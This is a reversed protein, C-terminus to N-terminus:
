LQNGSCVLFNFQLCLAPVRQFVNNNLRNLIADNNLANIVIVGDKKAQESIAIIGDTNSIFLIEINHNNRLKKYAPLAKEQDWEDDEIFLNVTPDGSKKNTNYEDIALQLAKSPTVGLDTAM